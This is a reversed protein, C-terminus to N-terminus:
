KKELILKLYGGGTAGGDKGRQAGDVINAGFV